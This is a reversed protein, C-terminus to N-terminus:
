EDDKEEKKGGFAMVFARAMRYQEQEDDLRLYELWGVLRTGMANVM